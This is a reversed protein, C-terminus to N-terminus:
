KNKKRMLFPMLSAHVHKVNQVWRNNAANNPPAKTKKYMGKPMSDVMVIAKMKQKIPHVGYPKLYSLDFHGVDFMNQKGALKCKLEVM